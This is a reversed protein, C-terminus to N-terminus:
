QAKPRECQCKLLRPRGPNSTLTTVLRGELAKAKAFVQIHGSYSVYRKPRYTLGEEKDILELV